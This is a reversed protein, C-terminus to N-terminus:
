WKLLRTSRGIADSVFSEFGKDALDAIIIETWPEKPTVNITLELYDM